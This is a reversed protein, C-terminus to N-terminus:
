DFKYRQFWKDNLTFGLHINIFNEKVLGNSLTGRQGVEASFNVKYFSLNNPRLPMGFGFTLSNSKIQTFGGGTPNPVNFYTQDHIFGFRYDVTAWYNGLANMNPTIQGGVNLTSSNAMGQNVGGISLDSWRATSYDAGVLYKQDKQYSIGFHNNQPLHIKANAGQQNIISDAAVNKNGSADYSYQSVIYSSKSNLNSSASASYALIIHRTLSLDISYQAGYDYNLGGVSNDQEVTSNLTGTYTPIETTQYHKLDGFIYSVNFGVLLHRAITFGYGLYAKSLGGEGSYIYNVANTDAPSGSGFGKSLTQKYNYGLQSYPLLGFSFASGRTVPIAFAVHSFRTNSNVASSQGSQSLFLTSSYIGADITTLSIAGYSAPNLPNISNFGNIVNTATAIGGMGINQPLLMPTLDGLGYQSYPSSSTATSQSKAEFVIVALLFTIFFKTYKIM